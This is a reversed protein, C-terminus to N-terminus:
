PELIDSLHRDHQSSLDRVGSRFRGAGRLARARKVEDLHTDAQALLADVSRRILDAMSRGRAAALQKLRRAQRETLQIQTRVM